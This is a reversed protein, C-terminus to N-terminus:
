DGMVEDSQRRLPFSINCYKSVFSDYIAKTRLYEICSIWEDRQNQNEAGFIFERRGEKEVDKKSWACTGINLDDTPKETKAPMCHYIAHTPIVGLPKKGQEFEKQDHFWALHKSRLIMFREEVKKNPKDGQKTLMGRKVVANPNKLLQNAIKKVILGQKSKSPIKDESDLDEALLIHWLLKEAEIEPDQDISLPNDQIHEVM